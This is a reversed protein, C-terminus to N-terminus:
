LSSIGEIIMYGTILRRIYTLTFIRFRYGRFLLKFRYRFITAFFIAARIFRDPNFLKKLTNAYNTVSPDNPRKYIPLKTTNNVDFSIYLGDADKFKLIDRTIEILFSDLEGKNWEDLVKAMEDQEM